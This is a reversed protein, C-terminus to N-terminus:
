AVSTMREPARGSHCQDVAVLRQLIWEAVPVAIANGCQRYRASDSQETGDAQWRTWDDPLGMLRECELPTLRRVATATQVGTIARSVAMIADDKGGHGPAGHNTGWSATLTPATILHGGAAGEADIRHGRRGGGQLTSAVLQGAAAEDAGVRWGGGPGGTGLTGITRPEGAGGSSGGADGPGAQSGAAPDRDGGESELLVEAPAARDGLCGAIFVRGRRQPVGFFQADLVRYAVGDWRKGVAGLVPGM